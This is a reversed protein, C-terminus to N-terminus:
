WLTIANTYMPLNDLCIFASSHLFQRYLARYLVHDRYLCVNSLLYSQWIACTHWVVLVTCPYMSWINKCMHAVVHGVAIYVERTIALYTGSVFIGWLYPMYAMCALYRISIHFIYVCIHAVYSTVVILWTVIPVTCMNSMYWQVFITQVNCIYTGSCQKTTCRCLGCKYM